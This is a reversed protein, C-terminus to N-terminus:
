VVAGGDYEYPAVEGVRLQSILQEQGAAVKLIGCACLRASDEDFCDSRLVPIDGEPIDDLLRLEGTQILKGDAWDYETVYWRRRGASVAVRHPAFVPAALALADTSLVGTVPINLALALANGTVVTTRVGMQSGPGVCVVIEDLEQLTIGAADVTNQILITFNELPKDMTLAAAIEGDRSVACSTVRQSADLGLRVM